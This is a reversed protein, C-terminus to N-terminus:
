NEFLLKRLFGPALVSLPNISTKPDSAEGTMKYTAAFLSGSGGTILQGVVPIGSFFSNLTSAPVVTGELDITNNTKHVVGKFTIGLSGGFSRGDIFKIAGGGIRNFWEFDTEMRTFSLGDSNLSTMLTPLDVLKILNALAPAARVKFNDIRATGRVDGVYGERHPIGAVTLRGGTVKDTLGVAKLTAGADDAEIRLSFRDEMNPKYRMYLAGRGVVADVELQNVKNGELLIYAKVANMFEKATTKVRQVDLGIEYAERRAEESPQFAANDNASQAEDGQLFPTAGLRAGKVDIKMLGGAEERLRVSFDNDAFILREINGDSILVRGKSDRSFDFDGNKLTIDDSVINLKKLKLLQGNQLEAEASFNGDRGAAKRFNFPELKVITPKLQGEIKLHDKKDWGQRLDIKAPV